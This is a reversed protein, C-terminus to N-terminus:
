LGAAKLQGALAKAFEELASALDAELLRPGSAGQYERLPRSVSSANLPTEFPRAHFPGEHRAAVQTDSLVYGHEWIVSNLTPDVLRIQTAMELALRRPGTQRLCIRRPNVQLQIADETNTSCIAALDLIGLIRPAETFESTSAAQLGRETWV